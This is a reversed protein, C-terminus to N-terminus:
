DIASKHNLSPNEYTWVGKTLKHSNLIRLGRRELFNLLLGRNTNIVHHSNPIGYQGFEGLHANYDGASFVM